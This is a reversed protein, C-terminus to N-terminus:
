EETKKKKSVSKKATTKKTTTKAKKEIKPAAKECEPNSCYTKKTRGFKHEVMYAGCVECKLTLPKDWSAFDCAPYNKCAIVPKTNKTVSNHHM